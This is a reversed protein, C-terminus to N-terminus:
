VIGKSNLERLVMEVEGTPDNQALRTLIETPNFTRAPLNLIEPGAGPGMPNGTTVPENPNQTTEFLGTIPSATPMPQAKAMPASSMLQETAKRDGYVNPDSNTMMDTRQSLAGPGSVPKAQSNTRVPRKGGQQAM